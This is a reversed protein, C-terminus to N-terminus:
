QEEGQRCHLECDFKTSTGAEKKARALQESITQVNSHHKKNHKERDAVFNM